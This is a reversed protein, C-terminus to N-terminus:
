LLFFLLREGKEYGHSIQECEKTGQELQVLEREMEQVDKRVRDLQNRQQQLNKVRDRAEKELKRKQREAKQYVEKSNHVIQTSQEKQRQAHEIEPDETGEGCPSSSSSSRGTVNDNDNVNVNVNGNVKDDEVFGELSVRGRSVAMRFERCSHWFDRKSIKREQKLRNMQARILDTKQRLGMDDRILSQYEM